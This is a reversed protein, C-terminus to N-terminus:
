FFDFHFLVIALYVPGLVLIELIKPSGMVPLPFHSV